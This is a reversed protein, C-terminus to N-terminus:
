PAALKRTVEGALSYLKWSRQQWRAEIFRADAPSKGEGSRWCEGRTDDLSGFCKWYTVLRDDLEAQCQTALDDGLKAKLAPDTLAAEIAIRAECEQVGERFVEYRLTAVAGDPGPALVSSVIDLSRWKSQPYRDTVTGVRNGNKDKVAYWFDAGIKGVGRQKGTINFEADCRLAALPFTNFFMFRDFQAVLYPVKWGYGREKAPDPCFQLQWINTGYIFPKGGIKGRGLIAAGSHAHSVWPLGGSLDTLLDIEPNTPRADSVVGLALTDELGREALRKRIGAYVPQWLAKAAPDTYPAIYVAASGQTTPDLVTVVPGAGYKKQLERRLDGRKKLNWFYSGEKKQEDSLKNFWEDNWENEASQLYIDWALLVVLKPKGMHKMATDLYRELVTFDHEFADGKAIWRVMTEANGFNTQGILPVYLVRSSVPKLLDMSRAILEWHRDGWLPLGYEVALTDPSQVMEVWTRWDQPDPLTWDAVKLEVPVATAAAGSPSISLQGTYTGAAADRPVAVTVWVALNGGGLGKPPASLLIDLGKPTYRANIMDKGWPQAYRVRVASAPITGGEAKLDSMSANIEDGGGGVAAVVKGSFTGGRAGVIAIRAAAPEGFQPKEDKLLMDSPALRLVPAPADAWAASVAALCAAGALALAAPVLTRSRRKMFMTPFERM